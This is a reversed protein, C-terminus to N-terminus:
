AAIIAQANSMQELPDNNKLAEVMARFDALRRAVKWPLGPAAAIIASHIILLLDQLYNQRYRFM